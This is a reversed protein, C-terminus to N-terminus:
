IAGVRVGVWGSLSPPPGVANGREPSMGTSSSRHLEPSWWVVARPSSLVMFDLFFVKQHYGARKVRYLSSGGGPAM